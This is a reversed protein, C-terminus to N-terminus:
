MNAGGEGQRKGEGHGISEDHQEGCAVSLLFVSNCASDFLMLLARVATEVIAVRRQGCDRVTSKPLWAVPSLKGPPSRSMTMRPTECSIFFGAVPNVLYFRSEFKQINRLLKQTTTAPASAAAAEVLQEVEVECDKKKRKRGGSM